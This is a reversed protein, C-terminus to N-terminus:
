KDDELSNSSDNLHESFDIICIIKRLEEDIEQVTVELEYESIFIEKIQKKEEKSLSKFLIIGELNNDLKVTAGKDTRAVPDVPASTFDFICFLPTFNPM